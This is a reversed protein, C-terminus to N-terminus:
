LDLPTACAPMNNDGAFADLYETVQSHDKASVFLDAKPDTRLAIAHDARDGLYTRWDALWERVIRGDDGEPAIRALDDLMADFYGNAQQVVRARATPSPSEPATPLEAVQALAIQCRAEAAVSFAPDSLRDPPPQRGPGFALYLVYGWMGLMGVVVIAAIVRGVTWRRTPSDVRDMLPASM